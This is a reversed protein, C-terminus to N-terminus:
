MLCDGFRMRSAITYHAHGGASIILMGISNSKIETIAGLTSNYEIPVSMKKSWKHFQVARLTDNATGDGAGGTAEIVHYKDSIITFRMQQALNRYADYEAVELIDTVAAAAGNTQHDIYVMIRVIDQAQNLNTTSILDLAIRYSMNYICCKRGVREQEAVGQKILCPADYIAGAVVTVIDAQAWDFFKKEPTAGTFRGYYGATRTRGTRGKLARRRGRMRSPGRRTYPRVTQQARWPKARGGGMWPFGSMDANESLRRVKTARPNNEREWFRKGDEIFAQIAM